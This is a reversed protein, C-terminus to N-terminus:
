PWDADSEASELLGLSRAHRRNMESGVLTLIRVGSEDCISGLSSTLHRETAAVIVGDPTVADIRSALEHATSCRAVVEHGHRIAEASLRDEAELPLAFAIRM